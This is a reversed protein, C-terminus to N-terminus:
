LEPLILLEDWTEPGSATSIVEEVLNFIISKLEVGQAVSSHWTSILAASQFDRVGPAVNLVDSILAVSHLM